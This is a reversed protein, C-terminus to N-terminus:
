FYDNSKEWHTTRRTCNQLYRIVSIELMRYLEIIGNIRSKDINIKM